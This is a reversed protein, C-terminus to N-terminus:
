MIHGTASQEGATDVVFEGLIERCINSFNSEALTEAQLERDRAKETHSEDNPAAIADYICEHVTQLFNIIMFKSRQMKRWESVCDMTNFLGEFFEDHKGGTTLMYDPLGSQAGQALPVSIQKAPSVRLRFFDNLYGENWGGSMYIAGDYVVTAHGQRPSWAAESFVEVWTSCGDSSKWTDNQRIDSDVMGGILYVDRDVAVCAHGQRGSWPANGCVLSWSRGRDKSAWVDNLPKKGDSGGILYIYEGVSVACHFM